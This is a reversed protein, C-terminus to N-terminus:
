LKRGQRWLLIWLEFNALFCKVTSAAVRLFATSATFFFTELPSSLFGTNSPM